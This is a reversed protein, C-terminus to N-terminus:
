GRPSGRGAGVFLAVLRAVVTVLYVQGLMAEAVAFTRGMASAATLDGYGLTALTVFSFYLFDNGVPHATQAFFPPAVNQIAAYIGAFALGFLLYVDIAGALTEVTVTPHQVIRWLIAPPAALLLAGVAIGILDHIAASDLAVNVLALLLALMAAVVAARMVVPGTRSTRVAALLTASTILVTAVGWASPNRRSLSLVFYAAVILLLVLVYSDGRAIRERLKPRRPARGPAVAKEM